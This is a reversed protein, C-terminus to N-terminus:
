HQDKNLGIGGFVYLMDGGDFCSAFNLIPMPLSNNQPDLEILRNWVFEINYEWLDNLAYDINFIRIFQKFYRM